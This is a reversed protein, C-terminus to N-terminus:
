SQGGVTIYDMIEDLLGLGVGKVKTIQGVSSFPGNNERYDVIRQALVPGIGPLNQLQAATATNINLRMEQASSEPETQPLVTVYVPAKQGSRWLSFAALFVALVGAAALLCWVATKKM